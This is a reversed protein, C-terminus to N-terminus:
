ALTQRDIEDRVMELNKVCLIYDDQSTLHQGFWIEEIRSALQRFTFQIRPYASLAHFYEYNTKTPAFASINSEDLLRLLSLYIARTASKFDGTSALRQAEQLWLAYDFTSERDQTSSSAVSGKTQLKQLTLWVLSILALASVLGGAYLFWEIFNGVARTDAIGPLVVKLSYLLDTLWRLCVAIQDQLVVLLHPPEHFKYGMAVTAIQPTIDKFGM